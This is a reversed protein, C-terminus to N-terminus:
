LYTLAERVTLRAARTAAADTALAAGLVVLVVWIGVALLSIRYPLPASFFLNGLGAGLVKTLGLAPLAAVLLSALALFIGEAVVIRRVAKPRAGIAHMIGFERTRDLVNASMTSALGIGGVIGMAVAIALIITVEPGLHGESIAEGRGVSAASAVKIGAGTLTATVADAVATRTPEDHSTTAIRLQNVRQPQGTAAALGAATAYVSSGGGKEEVLGVVRWTTPKGGVLLQVSDGAGIGPVTNNRAVQNLVV